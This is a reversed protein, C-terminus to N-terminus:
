PSEQRGMRGLGTSPSVCVGEQSFSNMEQCLPGKPAPSEELSGLGSHVLTLKRGQNPGCAIRGQMSAQSTAAYSEERDFLEDVEPPQPCSARGRRARM